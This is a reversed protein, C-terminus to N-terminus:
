NIESRKNKKYSNIWIDILSLHIDDTKDNTLVQYELFKLKEIGSKYFVVNCCNSEIGATEVPFYCSSYRIGMPYQKKLVNCINNTIKYYQDKQNMVAFLFPLVFEDEQIRKFDIDNPMIVGFEKDLRELVLSNDDSRSPAILMANLAIAAFFKKINRSSVDIFSGVPIDETCIYTGLVYKENHKIHTEIVCAMPSFNCYLAKEGQKNARNERGNPPPGWQSPNSFDTKDDYKRVRYLKTGKKIVSHGFNVPIGYDNLAVYAAYLELFNSTEYMFNLAAREIDEANNSQRALELEIGSKTLEIM